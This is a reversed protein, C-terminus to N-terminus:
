YDGEEDSEKTGSEGSEHMAQCAQYMRHFADFMAEPSGHDLATKFDEAAMEGESGEPAADDETVGSMEGMLSSMGSSKGGGMLKKTISSAM